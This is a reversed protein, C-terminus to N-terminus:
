SVPASLMTNVNSCASMSMSSFLKAVLHCATGNSRPLSLATMLRQCVARSSVPQFLRYRLM